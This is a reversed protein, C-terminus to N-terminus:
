LSFLDLFWRPAELGKNCDLPTIFDMRCRELTWAMALLNSAM